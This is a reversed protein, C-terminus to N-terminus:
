LKTLAWNAAEDSLAGGVVIARKINIGSIYERAEYHDKDALLLPYDPLNVASIGDAFVAASTLIVTESKPFFKEAIRRSTAYRNAGAFRSPEGYDKLENFVRDNVAGTGGMVYFTKLGREKLFEKQGETLKDSVLMVPRDIKGACLGDPFAAGSAIIIQANPTECEKLVALNTEYRNAGFIRKVELYDLLAEAKSSVAGTGGIIYVTKIFSRERIYKATDEIVDPSTLLVSARKERAFYAASLSDPFTKGSVLVVSERKELNATAKSTNYRDKGYIREFPIVPEPNPATTDIYVYGMIQSPYRRKRLVKGGNDQSGSESTNGEIAIIGSSTVEEVIGIHDAGDGTAPNWDYLVIAGVKPKYSWLGKSVAWRRWPECGAKNTLGDLRGIIGLQNFCWAMFVACWASKARYGWYWENYKNSGDADNGQGIQSIALELISRYAM